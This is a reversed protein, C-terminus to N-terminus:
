AAVGASRSKAWARLGVVSLILYVAYLGAAVWLGRAPYLALAILDVVIWLVWNEIKRWALLIQASVSLAVILADWYPYAADTLRHMAAGWLMAFILIAGIWILRTVIGLREVVVVGADTSARWWAWWGYLQVVIYFLQLGADSYLRAAFFVPVLLAVSVIGFPYNWVSRRVLLAINAFGAVAAGLELPNVARLAELASVVTRYCTGGGGALMM